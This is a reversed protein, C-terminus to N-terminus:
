TKQSPSAFELWADLEKISVNLVATVCDNIGYTVLIASASTADRVASIPFQVSECKEDQADSALAPM